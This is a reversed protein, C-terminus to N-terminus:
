GTLATLLLSLEDEVELRNSVTAMVEHRLAERLRQRLRHLESKVATETMGLKAANERHSLADPDDNLYGSLEHVSRDARSRSLGGGGRWICPGNSGVGM